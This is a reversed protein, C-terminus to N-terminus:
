GGAPRRPALGAQAAPHKRLVNKTRGIADLTEAIREYDLALRRLEEQTRVHEDTDAISRLEEAKSRYSEALQVADSM